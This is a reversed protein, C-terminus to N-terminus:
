KKGGAEAEHHEAAAPNNLARHIEALRKHTERIRDALEPMTALHTKLLGLRRDLLLVATFYEKDQRYLEAQKACVDALNLAWRPQRPDDQTLIERVAIARELHGIAEARRGRQTEVDALREETAALLSWSAIGGERSRTKEEVLKLSQRFADFAADLNGAQLYADGLAFQVASDNLHERGLRSLRDADLRLLEAVTGSNEPSRRIRDVIRDVDSPTSEVRSPSALTSGNNPTKVRNWALSALLFGALALILLYLPSVARKQEWLRIWRSPACRRNTRLPVGNLYRQLDEALDHATAYRHEPQKELCCLCIAGLDRPVNPNRKRPDVPMSHLVLHLTEIATNGLFPPQSTLLEYLIAGLGYIDSAKGVSHVHGSAQEPSMFSPTGIAVGSQTQGSSNNLLRALGFDSIKVHITDEPSAPEICLVNAPKLDRHIIEHDHAVQIALALQRLIEAAERPDPLKSRLRRELSGSAVYELSLYPMGNAIGVDYVQVINPHQLSALSSAEQLFRQRLHEDFLNDQRIMKIAVLRNLSQQRALYVNSSGGHDLLRVIEHGPVEPLPHTEPSWQLVAHLQDRESAALPM